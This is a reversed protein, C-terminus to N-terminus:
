RGVRTTYPRETCSDVSFGGFVVSFAAKEQFHKARHTILYVFISLRLATNRV